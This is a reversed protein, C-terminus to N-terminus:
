PEFRQHPVDIGAKAATERARAEALRHSSALARAQAEEITLRVVPIEQSWMPAAAVNYFAFAMVMTRSFGSVVYGSRM